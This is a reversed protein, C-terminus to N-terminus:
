TPITLSMGPKVEVIREVEGLKRWVQGRGEIFYWIEDVTLHKVAKSTAEPPLTVHCLGGRALSNLLRIESGDPALYNFSEPLHIDNLNM